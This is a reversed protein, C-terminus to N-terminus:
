FQFYIFQSIPRLFVFILAIMLSYSATQALAFAVPRPALLPVVLRKVAAAALTSLLVLAAVLYVNERMALVLYESPVFIRSWMLLADHLSEARFPIWGLMALPLTVAWGATARVRKPLDPLWPTLIRHAYVLAAHYVGWLVFTWNSGHWLGMIAWTLFLSRTRRQVRADDVAAALGGRSDDRVAEGMLPLYLYDRIWSSLSIHWRKWFDRPSTALYPFNFNEPFHIGMLRASGLAIHSYASFDFYIQFGFLFALTWVDLAGLTEVSQAFGSDVQPALNDAMVVKLFLGFLIRRIGIAFDAIQFRPRLNLQHIVERARLIPGAVLQPFFTVYCAYVVFEREPKILRRYVDVTYSITQFTYFSIGLPLIINWHPDGVDFGISRLLGAGNSAFFILYKFYFLLGLNVVLSLGLLVRRRRPDDSAHIARAAAYDVLTSALMVPLFEVRWFGYFTLSALFLMWLRPRRPLLWYLGVAIALFILFTVSNFIV